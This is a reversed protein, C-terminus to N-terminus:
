IILKILFELKEAAQLSLFNGSVDQARYTIFSVLESSLLNLALFNKADGSKYYKGDFRVNYNTKSRHILLPKDNFDLELEVYYPDETNWNQLADSPLDSFDLAYAIGRLLSSKGAGNSRGPSDVYAGSLGYLGREPFTLSHEGFFSAFNKLKINKLRIM